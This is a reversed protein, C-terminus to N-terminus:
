PARYGPAIPARKARDARLGDRLEIVYPVVSFLVVAVAVSVLYWTPLSSAKLTLSWQREGHGIGALAMAVDWNMIVVSILAFLPMLELFSHVQQELPTITRRSGAYHLDWYGALEHGILLLLMLVLTLATAQLFAGMLLALGVQAFMLLHIWSEKAGALEAIHSRRHCIFDLFGAAIWVPIIFFMLVRYITEEVITGARDPIRIRTPHRSRASIHM